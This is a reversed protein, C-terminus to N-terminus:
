AGGVALDDLDLTGTFVHATPGLMLVHGDVERWTIVLPGGDLVVQARREAYGRRVAATLAACAGSGCAQTIGAGREWIRVRLETPSRVELLGVNVREPFRDHREALPGLGALDVAEADVVLFTAHPNGVNCCAPGNLPGVALDIRATDAEERSLPVEHWATRVPGMDVEIENGVARWPLLGAVTEVVGDAAGTLWAVCRTANGCAEAEGGDPNYIRMFLDAAASPELVILQDCGIGRRRDALARIANADLPPAEEHGDLVVFDNGLGHMKTFDLKAM